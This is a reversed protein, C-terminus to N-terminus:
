KPAPTEIRPLPITDSGSHLVMRTVNGSSDTEFTFVDDATTSFFQAPGEPLLDQKPEDNEQITLHDGEHRIVLILRPPTGYSGAYKDLTQSDVSVRKHVPLPWRPPLQNYPTFGEWEIPTFKDAIITELLDKYIGEGNGSNTMIVIATKPKLFGVTYNRWGDDHGEKFFAKGYPCWYLGWGLGYSLRISKNADTPQNELTPFEHAALIQIQPSLMEYWAKKPLDNDNMVAQVFRAFDLPTTLLSGAADAHKWKLPGLARGYEDYGSAYDDEFKPEWVMSSRTMGLPQFVDERMLDELPKKTVTEVVLQLLDIGEGSYAFRSGPTFNMNLKKDDNIWRWNPFGSTHDLLMRATILKYRPDNALDSYREYEPLPRPLYQYVPKDLDLVGQDVLHMVMWAFVAKSFSAGSMVTNGTLPLSKEKDRFGYGKVFAIQGNNIIAIGAGPVEAAKMLRAVTVDIQEPTITTGDLRKVTSPAAPLTGVVFAAATMAVAAAGITAYFAIKRKM